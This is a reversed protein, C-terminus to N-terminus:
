KGKTYGLAVALATVIFFAQLELAWGGTNGISLFQGTHVLLLAVLMNGAVILAAPVVWVGILLLLPAVVEGLYVGYALWSPLGHSAVMKEIGGIGQTIKAWGHFLLLLALTIRLLTIAARPHHLHSWFNM